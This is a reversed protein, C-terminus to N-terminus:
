REGETRAIIAEIARAIERLGMDPYTRYGGVEATLYGDYGTERLGKMVKGWPVDGELLNCFGTAGPRDTRYDKVHVARVRKALIRIWQDPFGHAMVNGVDFYAEAGEGCEDVFRAFEFPSYLFRNWVNEVALILDLSKAKQALKAVSERANRYCEDYPCDPRVRGPVILVVKAGLASAQECVRELVRVGAERKQPEVSGLDQSTPMVSPIEVGADEAARRIEKLKADADDHSFERPPDGHQLEVGDFGSDKALGFLESFAHGAPLCARVTGAVIGKKM